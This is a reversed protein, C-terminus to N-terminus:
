HRCFHGPIDSKVEPKGDRTRDQSAEGHARGALDAAAAALLIPADPWACSGGHKPAWGCAASLGGPWAVQWSGAKINGPTRTAAAVRAAASPRAAAEAAPCLVPSPYGLRAVPPNITPIQNISHGVTSCCCGVPWPLVVHCCARPLGRCGGGGGGGVWSRRDLVCVGRVKCTDLRCLMHEWIEWARVEARCLGQM